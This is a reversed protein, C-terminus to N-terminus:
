RRVPSSDADGLPLIAAIRAIWSPIACGSSVNSLNM